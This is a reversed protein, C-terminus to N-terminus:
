TYVLFAAVLLVAALAAWIWATSGPEHAEPENAPKAADLQVTVRELTVRPGPAAAALFEEGKRELREIDVSSLPNRPAPWKVGAAASTGQTWPRNCPRVIRKVQVLRRRLKCTAGEELELDALLKAPMAAKWLGLKPDRAVAAAMKNQDLLVMDGAERGVIDSSPLVAVEYRKYKTVSVGSTLVLGVHAKFVKGNLVRMSVWDGPQYGEWPPPRAAESLSGSTAHLENMQMGLLEQMKFQFAGYILVSAGALAGAKVSGSIATGLNGYKLAFPALILGLEALAKEAWPSAAGKVKAELARADPLLQQRKLQVLLEKGGSWMTKAVDDRGVLPHLAALAAQFQEYMAPGETAIRLRGAADTPPTGYKRFVLNVDSLEAQLAPARSTLHAGMDSNIDYCTPWFPIM